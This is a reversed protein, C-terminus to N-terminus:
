KFLGMQFVTNITPEDAKNEVFLKVIPVIDHFSDDYLLPYKSLTILQRIMFPVKARCAVCPIWNLRCFQHIDSATLLQEVVLM